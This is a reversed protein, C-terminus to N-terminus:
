VGTLEDKTTVLVGNGLDIKKPRLLELLNNYENLAIKIDKLSSLYSENNKVNFLVQEKPQSEVNDVLELYRELEKNLKEQCYRCRRSSEKVKNNGTIVDWIEKGYM